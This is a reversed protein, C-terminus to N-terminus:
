KASILGKVLSFDFSPQVLAARVFTDMAEGYISMNGLDAVRTSAVPRASDALLTALGDGYVSLNDLRVVARGHPGRSSDQLFTQIESGYVSFDSAWAPGAGLSLLVACVAMLSVMRHKIKM